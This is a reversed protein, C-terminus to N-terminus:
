MVRLDHLYGIVSHLVRLDVIVNLAILGAGILLAVLITLTIRWYRACLIALFGISIFAIAQFDGTHPFYASM